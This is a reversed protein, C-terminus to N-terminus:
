CFASKMRECEANPISYKKAICRWNNHIIKQVKESLEKAQSDSLRFYSASEIALKMDKENSQDDITLSLSNGWASPNLDYAPSLEWQDNKLLFGHNRLHDDVNSVAISFVIRKWLERIDEEARSSNGELFEVIDLYSATDGDTKGLMTMASAFHIRTNDDHRDFRQVLFTSGHESFHRLQAKPVHLGSLVALDHVVM